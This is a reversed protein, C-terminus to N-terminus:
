LLCTFIQVKINVKPLCYYLYLHVFLRSIGQIKTKYCKSLDLSLLYTGFVLWEILILIDVLQPASTSILQQVSSHNCWLDFAETTSNIYLSDSWLGTIGYTYNWYVMPKHMTLCCTYSAASFVIDM